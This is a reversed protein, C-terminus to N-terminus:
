EFWELRLAQKERSRPKDRNVSGAAGSRRLEQVRQVEANKEKDRETRVHVEGHGEALLQVTRWPGQDGCTCVHHFEWPTKQGKRRVVRFEHKM